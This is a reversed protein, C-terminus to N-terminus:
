YAPGQEGWLSQCAPMQALLDPRRDPINKPPYGGGAGCEYVTKGSSVTKPVYPLGHACNPIIGGALASNPMITNPDPQRRAGGGGGRGGFGGRGGGYGGRQQGQYGNQPPFQQQGQQPNGWAGQTPAPQQQAGFGPVNQPSPQFPTQGMPVGQQQGFQPGQQPMMEAAQLALMSKYVAVMAFYNEIARQYDDDRVTLHVNSVDGAIASYNTVVFRYETRGDNVQVWPYPEDEHMGGHSEGGDNAQQDTVETM